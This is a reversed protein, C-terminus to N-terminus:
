PNKGDFLISGKNEELSNKFKVDLSIKKNLGGFYPINIKNFNIFLSFIFSLIFFIFFLRKKM